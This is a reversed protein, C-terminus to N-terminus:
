NLKVAVEKRFLYKVPYWTALLGIFQVVFFVGVFEVAKMKVPYADIIFGGGSGLQLLGFQQQLYLLAFGLVLGAVGGILSIMMGELMFIRQTLKKGAGLSRLVAIDKLKEVILISISGIMNFSALILIFVLILFIATKESRMVKYLAENQRFRNKIVFDGGLIKSIGAQLDDVDTSKDIFIEVSTVEDSYDLIKRAFRLPVLIYKEDFEQQISFIGAPHILENNFATEFQFSSANGRKPVFVSLLHRVDNLNINLYWAVGAGAVAFNSEGEQLVFTGEILMTDLSSMQKYDAPLGKITGIFQQDRYKFLADEEVVPALGFVGPLNAIKENPFERYHFTKGNSVTIELDPNFTGYLSKIVGEFGNFVSLVVILAMTGITLGVVSIISVVNILNHSKKSVLYRRAIFLSTRM